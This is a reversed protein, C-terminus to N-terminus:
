IYEQKLPKVVMEPVHARAPLVAIAAVLSAIDSPQLISAKHEDSVQVPRNDLIPTNVEGPYVNTIRIGHEAAENAVSTGLATMAFKSANYAVGAIAAARKGAVSSINVILGDGREVMRSYVAHLCNYAGTANVAIVKDWEEPSMAAMSRDRINIGASNVLIDVQGLEQRAWAFMTNVSERDAVDVPHCLMGPEGQWTAISEALKEARRGTIAVRCGLEALAVAIGFGIGTGGGTIVANKGTLQKTM